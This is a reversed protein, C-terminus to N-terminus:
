SAFRWGLALAGAGAVGTSKLMMQVNVVLTPDTLGPIIKETLEASISDLLRAMSPRTIM